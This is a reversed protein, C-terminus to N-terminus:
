SDRRRFAFPLSVFDCNKIGSGMRTKINDFQSFDVNCDADTTKPWAVRIQGRIYSTKPFDGTAGLRQYAVFYNLSPTTGSVSSVGNINYKVRSSWANDGLNQITTIRTPTLTPTWIEAYAELEALQQEALTIAATRENTERNYSISTVLMGLVGLAGIALIASAVMAEIVTFGKNKM